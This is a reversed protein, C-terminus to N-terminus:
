GSAWFITFVTVKGDKEKSTLYERGRRVEFHDGNQATVAFDRICIRKFTTM